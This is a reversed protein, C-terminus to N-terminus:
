IHSSIIAWGGPIIIGKKCLIARRSAGRVGRRPDSIHASRWPFISISNHYVRVWVDVSHPVGSSFKVIVGVGPELVDKNELIIGASGFLLNKMWRFKGCPGYGSKRFNDGRQRELTLIEYIRFDTGWLKIIWWSKSRINPIFPVLFNHQDHQYLNNCTKTSHIVKYTHFVM